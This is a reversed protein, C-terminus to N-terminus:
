AANSMHQQKCLCLFLRKCDAQYSYFIIKWNLDDVNRINNSLEQNTYQIMKVKYLLTLGPTAFDDTGM